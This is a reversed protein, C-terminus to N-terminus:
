EDEDPSEIRPIASNVRQLPGSTEDYSRRLNRIHTGILNYGKKLNDLTNLRAEIRPLVAGPKRTRLFLVLLVVLLLISQCILIYLLFDM